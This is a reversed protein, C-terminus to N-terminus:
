EAPVSTATGASTRPEATAPSKLSHDGRMLASLKRVIPNDPALSKVKEFIEEHLTPMGPEPHQLLLEIAKGYQLVANGIDGKEEYLEGYLEIIAISLPEVALIETILSEAKVYDQARLAAGALYRYEGLAVQLDGRHLHLKALLQCVEPNGPEKTLLQNLIAEAGTFQKDEIGRTAESLLNPPQVSQGPRQLTATNSRQPLAITEM